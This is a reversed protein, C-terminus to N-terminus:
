GNEADQPRAVHCVGSVPELFRRWAGGRTQKAGARVEPIRWSPFKTVTVITASALLLDYHGRREAKKADSLITQKRGRASAHRTLALNFSHQSRRIISADVLNRRGQDTTLRDTAKVTAPTNKVTQYTGNGLTQSM